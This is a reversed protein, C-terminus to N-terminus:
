AERRKILNFHECYAQAAGEKTPWICAVMPTRGNIKPLLPRQERRPYFGIAHWGDEHQEFVGGHREVLAVYDTM